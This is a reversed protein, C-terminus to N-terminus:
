FYSVFGNGIRAGRWWDPAFGIEQTAVEEAAERREREQTANEIRLRANEPDTPFVADKMVGGLFDASFRVAGDIDEPHESREKCEAGLARVKGAYEINLNRSFTAYEAKAAARIAEAQEMKSNYKTSAESGAQRYEEMLRSLGDVFSQAAEELM